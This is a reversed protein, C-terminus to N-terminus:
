NIVNKFIHQATKNINVQIISQVKGLVGSLMELMDPLHQLSEQLIPETDFCLLTLEMVGSDREEPIYDCMSLNLHVCNLDLCDLFPRM